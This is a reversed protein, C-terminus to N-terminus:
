SALSKSATNREAKLIEGGNEALWNGGGSGNRYRQSSAM